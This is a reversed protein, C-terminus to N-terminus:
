PLIEIANIEPNQVMPTFTIDLQGDTVTVSVTEVWAKRPAGAKEVVDFAKLYNGEVNMTFVRQGKETVKPFTEAFHLKVTYKGNPVPYSFVSMGFHETRYIVPNDTGTIEAQGRDVMKGSTFGQDPLWVNGRPDTYPATAGANIRIAPGKTPSKSPTKCGTLLASATFLCLV